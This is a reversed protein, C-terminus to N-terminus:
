KKNMKQLTELVQATVDVVDGRVYAPTTTEFIIVYDGEQGVRRLAESVRNRIPTMLTQEHNELDVAATQRFQNIKQDLEQLEQVRRKRIEDPTGAGLAQLEAYKKNMDAKLSNFDAEYKESYADLQSKVEEVEPLSAILAETDIVGFRQAMAMAPIAVLAMILIRRIM